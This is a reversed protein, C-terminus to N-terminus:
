DIIKPITFFNNQSNPANKLAEERSITQKVEDKRFINKANTLHLLPEENDTDLTGIKDFMQIMGKLEIKLNEKEETELKIKSLNELKSILDDDIIM